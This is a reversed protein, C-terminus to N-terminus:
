PYLLVVCVSLLSKIFVRKKILGSSPENVALVVAAQMLCFGQCLIALRGRAVSGGM